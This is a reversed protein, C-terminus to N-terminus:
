FSSTVFAVPGTYTTAIEGDWDQGSLGGSVQLTRWGLGFGLHRWPQYLADVGVSLISGYFPDYQLRLADLRTSVSWEDTLAVQGYVSLVPLPALIKGEGASGGGSTSVEAEFQSVHFGLAVGIEKDQTKFFSYGCSLRLVSADFKATASTGAPITTDGWTVDQALTRTNKRNLSFYEFELRWRESFRWRAMGQPAWSTEALGFVDEFDVVAGAGATSKLELQTNSSMFTAGLGFYWTDTLAPNNPIRPADDLSGPAVLAPAFDRLLWAPEAPSVTSVISLLAAFEHM